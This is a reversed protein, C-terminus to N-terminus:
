VRETAAVVERYRGRGDYWSVAVMGAGVLRERVSGVGLGSSIISAGGVGVGVGVGEDLPADLWRLNMIVRMVGVRGVKVREAVV